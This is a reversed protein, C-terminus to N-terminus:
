SPVPQVFLPNSAPSQTRGRQQLRQPGRHQPACALRGPVGQTLQVRCQPSGDAVVVYTAAGLPRAIPRYGSVRREWM